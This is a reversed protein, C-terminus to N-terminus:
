RSSGQAMLEAAREVARIIRAHAGCRCIHADLGEVIAARSPRANQTLLAKARMLIGSLCYGCQGAQERIFSVILPHPPEAQALSEVTEVHSGAVAAVPTTCSTVPRGNVLVTCSACQGEGCGLRTGRLGLDNRLAYVLAMEGDAELTIERGNLRFSITQMSAGEPVGFVSPGTMALHGLGAAVTADPM